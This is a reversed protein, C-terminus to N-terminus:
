IVMPLSSSEAETILSGSPKFLRLTSAMCLEVNARSADHTKAVLHHLMVRLVFHDFSGRRETVVAEDLISDQITPHRTKAQPAELYKATFIWPTFSRLQRSKNFSSLRRRTVVAQTWFAPTRPLM